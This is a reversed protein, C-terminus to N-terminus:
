HVEILKLDLTWSPTENRVLWLSFEIHIRAIAEVIKIDNIRTYHAFLGRAARDPDIRLRAIFADYAELYGSATRKNRFANGNAVTLMHTAGHCPVCLIELRTLSQIAQPVNWTWVEHCHWEGIPNYCRACTNVKKRLDNKIRSWKWSSFLLANSLRNGHATVPTFELDIM